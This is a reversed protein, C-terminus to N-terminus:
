PDAKQDVNRQTMCVNEAVRYFLPTMYRMHKISFVPNLMKRQRRHLDGTIFQESMTIGTIYPPCVM